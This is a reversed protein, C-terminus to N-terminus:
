YSALAEVRTNIKLGSEAWDAQHTDEIIAKLYIFIPTVELQEKSLNQFYTLASLPKGDPKSYEYSHATEFDNDFLYLKGLKSDIANKINNNRTEIGGNQGKDMDHIVHYKINFHNFVEIFKVFNTPSTGVVFLEKNPPDIKENLLYRIVAPETYSEVLIVEDALFVECVNPDFYMQTKFAQRISELEDKNFLNSEVQYLKTILNEKKLTAISTHPKNLDVLQPNHSTCIVQFGSDTLKYLLDRFKRIMHPHLYLEPEEICIIFQKDTDAGLSRKVEIIYNLAALRM